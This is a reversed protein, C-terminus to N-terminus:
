RRSMAVSKVVYRNAQKAMECFRSELYSVETPGFSNNSTTFSIAETWYDKDVHRKHEKLLNIIGEGNKRVGAQGIYVVSEGSDEDMGFLFYVGM